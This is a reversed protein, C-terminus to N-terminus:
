KIKRVVIGKTPYYKNQRIKETKILNKQEDYYQLYGNSILGEKAYSIRKEEGVKLNLNKYKSVDTDVFGEGAPLTKVKESVRQIKYKNKEGFIKVKCVDNKYSSTIIIKGSTNNRVILDSSGSNVMADFSPEVYSVPLSHSNVELIELGALLCANYLTTSVQCVGGGFGETFSGNMIIKAAQYGNEENREGTTANFSFKEGVDLVTGDIKSLAMRINHKREASSSSFNTSFVGKEQFETKTNGLSEYNKTKLSIKFTKENNKLCNFLDDYFLDECVYRGIKGQNYILSCTNEKVEVYDEEPNVGIKTALDDFIFKSEPLIYLCIEKKSLGFSKLKSINLNLDGKNERIKRQADTLGIKDIINNSSYGFVNDDFAIEYNFNNKEEVISSAFCVNNIEGNRLFLILVVFFLLLFGYKQTKKM